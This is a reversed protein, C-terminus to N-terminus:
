KQADASKWRDFCDRVGHKHIFLLKHLADKVHQKHAHNDQLKRSADRLRRLRLRNLADSVTGGRVDRKLQRKDNKLGNVRAVRLADRWTYFARQVAGNRKELAVTMANRIKERMM